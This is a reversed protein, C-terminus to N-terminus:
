TPTKILRSEPVSQDAKFLTAGPVANVIPDCSVMLAVVKVTKPRLLAVAKREIGPLALLKEKVPPM